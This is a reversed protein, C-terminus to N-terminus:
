SFGELVNIFNIGNLDRLDVIPVGGIIYLDRGPIGKRKKRQQLGYLAAAERCLFVRAEATRTHLRNWSAETTSIEQQLPRVAKDKDEFLESAANYGSRRSAIDAKRRVIHERSKEVQSRLVTCEDLLATTRTKSRAVASRTEELVVRNGPRLTAESSPEKLSIKGGDSNQALAISEIEKALAEKSLLVQAHKLRLEYLANRACTPCFFLLKNEPTRLCVQCQPGTIDM